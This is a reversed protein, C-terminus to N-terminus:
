SSTPSTEAAPAGAASSPSCPRGGPRRAELVARAARDRAVRHHGRCAGLRRAPEARRVRQQLTGFLADCERVFARRGRRRQGRRPVRLVPSLRPGAPDATEAHPLAAPGARAPCLTPRGRDQDRCQRARARGAVRGARHARLQRAGHRPVVDRRGARPACPGAGVAGRSFRPGPDCRRAARVHHRVSRGLWGGRHRRGAPGAARRLIRRARRARLWGFALVACGAVASGYAARAFTVILTYLGLVTTLPSRRRRSVARRREVAAALAFPLAMATYVGVYGGGLHMISFTAVIRYVGAFDLAGPFLLREYLAAAGVLALGTAMGAAFLRAADARTALARRLFPLLARALLFGMAVRLQRNDPAAFSPSTPGGPPQRPAGPRAGRRHRLVADGAGGGLRGPGRGRFRRAEATRAAGARRHHRARRSGVGRRLEMRDVARPRLVAAGRARRRAVRHALAM